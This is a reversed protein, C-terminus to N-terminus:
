VAFGPNGGPPQMMIKLTWLTNNLASENTRNFVALRPTVTYFMNERSFPVRSTRERKVVHKNYGEPLTTVLGNIFFAKITHVGTIGAVNATCPASPTFKM